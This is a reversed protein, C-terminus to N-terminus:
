PVAQFLGAEIAGEDFSFVASAASRRAQAAILFDAFDPGSRSFGRVAEVVVDRDQFVFIPMRLILEFFGAIESRACKYTSKMAWATEALALLPVLVVQGADSATRLLREARQTQSVDDRVALRVLINSDVGIM